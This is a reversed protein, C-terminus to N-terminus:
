LIVPFVVEILNVDNGSVTSRQKRTRKTWFSVKLKVDGPSERLISLVAPWFEEKITSRAVKASKFLGRKATRVKIEPVCVVAEDPLLRKANRESLIYATAKDQIMQIFGDFPIGPSLLMLDYYTSYAYVPISSILSLRDYKIRM